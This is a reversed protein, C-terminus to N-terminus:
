SRERPAALPTVVHLGKGGTTKCFGVLGLEELQDSIERGGEIVTVFDVGPGPDLDFDM